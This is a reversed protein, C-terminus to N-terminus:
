ERLTITSKVMCIPAGKGRIYPIIPYREPLSIDWAGASDGFLDAAHHYAPRATKQENLHVGLINDSASSPEDLIIDVLEIDAPLPEFLLAGEHRGSKPMTIKKNLPINEQGIIKFIRTSDNVDVIYPEASIKVWYGPLHMLTLAVRTASDTREINGLESYSPQFDVKPVIAQVTSIAAALLLLSLYRKM